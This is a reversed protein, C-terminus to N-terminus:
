SVWRWQDKVMIATRGEFKKSMAEWDPSSTELLDKLINMKDERTWKVAAKKTPSGASKTKSPSAPPTSPYPKTEDESTSKPKQARPMTRFTLHPNSDTTLSHSITHDKSSTLYFTPLHLSLPLYIM